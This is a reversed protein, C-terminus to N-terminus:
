AARSSRARTARRPAPRRLGDDAAAGVALELGRQDLISGRRAPLTVVETQQNAALRDLSGAQVGQIWVARALTAAFAAAFLLALLRIRRNAARADSVERTRPLPVISTDASPALM